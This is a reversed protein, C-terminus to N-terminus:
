SRIIPNCTSWTVSGYMAAHMKKLLDADAHSMHLFYGDNVTEPQVILFMGNQRYLEVPLNDATMTKEILVSQEISKGPQAFRQPLPNMKQFEKDLIEHIAYADLERHSDAAYILESSATTAEYWLDIFMGERVVAEVLPRFDQDGAIFAVKHMNRRHTHTLMDVAILIDIEKQRARKGTGKVVGEVVHWGRLARLKRFHAEQLAMRGRYDAETEQMAQPGLCDYYFVKTFQSALLSLDVPVDSTNFFKEGFARIAGRLYAGDVFLYSIEVPGRYSSGFSSM